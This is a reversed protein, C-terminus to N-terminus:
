HELKIYKNLESERGSLRDKVGIALKFYGKYKGPLSLSISVPDKTPQLTNSTEYVTQRQDNVLQINVDLHGVTAQNNGPSGEQFGSISFSLLRDKLSFNFIGLNHNDMYDLLWKLEDKKFIKKYYIDMVGTSGARNLKVTVRKDGPSTDRTFVPFILEYYTDTRESIRNIGERTNRTEVVTGGTHRTMKQLVQEYAPSNSMVVNKLLPEQGASFLIVNYNINVGLLGDLIESDPFGPSLPILQLSQDIQDLNKDILSVTEHNSEPLTQAYAKIKSKLDLFRQYFPIIEKEQFHILWKEGQGPAALSAIVTYQALNSLIFRERYQNWEYSYHKLFFMVPPISAPGAKKIKKGTNELWDNLTAAAEERAQNFAHIDKQAITEIYQLIEDKGPANAIDMKYLKLPTWVVLEDTPKLVNYVFHSVGLALPGQYRSGHIGLIIYRPENGTTLSRTRCFFGTMTQPQDNVLLQFDGANIDKIWIDNGERNELVRVPLKLLIEQRPLIEKGPESEQGWALLWPLLLLVGCGMMRKIM